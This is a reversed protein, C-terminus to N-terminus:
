SSVAINKNDMCYVVAGAKKLEKGSSLEANVGCYAWVDGSILFDDTLFKVSM